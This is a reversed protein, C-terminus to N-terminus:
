RGTGALVVSVVVLAGGVAVSATLREDLVVAGLLVAVLPELISTLLMRTAGIRQMLWYNLWFGALSGALALYIVSLTAAPTWASLRPPGEVVAALLMLPLMGATMQALMLTTAPVHRGHARVLVYALAVVFAAGVVALSALAARAGSVHLEDIFIVAVGVIGLLLGLTRGPTMREDPLIRWSLTLAFAPTIAQLVAMLGSSVYQAAWYLLAYNLTFLVFGTAAVLRADARAISLPRRAALRFGAMLGVAILLRTVAFTLPPVDTVGIKIFLWVTSWILCVLIWAALTM